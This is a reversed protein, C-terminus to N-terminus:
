YKRHMLCQKNLIITCGSKNAAFRTKWVPKYVAASLLGKLTEGFGGFKGLQGVTGRPSKSREVIWWSFNPLGCNHAIETAKSAWPSVTGLRPAVVILAGDASARAADGYHLLAALQQTQADSLAADSWVWHVHRADIAVVRECRAQLRALLARLRFDSAANGGEFSRLHELTSTM